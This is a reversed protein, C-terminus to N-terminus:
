ALAGRGIRKASAPPARVSARRGRVRQRRGREGRADAFTPAWRAPGFRLLRRWPSSMPDVTLRLTATVMAAIAAPTAAPEAASRAGSSRAASTTRRVTPAGTVGLTGSLQPFEAPDPRFADARAAPAATEFLANMPGSAHRVYLDIPYLSQRLHWKPDYNLSGSYFRKYGNAIAWEIIDHFVRYYMNLKFAVSYDFGVYEHCIDDGQAMCLGFAIIRAGQRWIFFRVKDPIRSVIECLFEKTLKEFQLPSREFVKLYLPYVDDIIATVDDVLSM